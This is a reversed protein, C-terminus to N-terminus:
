PEVSTPSTLQTTGVACNRVAVNTGPVGPWLQCATAQEPLEIPREQLRLEGLESDWDPLDLPLTAAPSGVPADWWSGLERAAGGDGDLCRGWDDRGLLLHFRSGNVNM